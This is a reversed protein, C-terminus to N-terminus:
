NSLKRCGNVRERGPSSRSERNLIKRARAVYSAIATKTVNQQLWEGLSGSPPEDRSTGCPVGKEKFHRLLEQYKEASVYAEWPKSGYYIRTGDQVSGSYTFESRKRWTPLTKM